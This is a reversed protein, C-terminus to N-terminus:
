QAKVETWIRDYIALAETPLPEIWELRAMTEEDPYVSPDELIEPDIYPKAAENPSAYWVYNTNIGAVEPDMLWNMFHEATLKHVGTSSAPICMNDQWIVGGEQPMVFTWAENEEAAVLVDGSWAHSLVIEGPVMLNDIYGSSDFTKWCPKAALLIERAEMLHAEDTENVSYGLYKLAAGVVERQDDLMNIGGDAYQCATDPDLLWAWSDPPPDVADMDYGIGTTGWFYPLSYVNGPDYAPDKNLDAINAFNPLNDFDLPALLGLEIMQAVMYDSPFILDYGTAGAQLKALLDENSDYTDLVVTVGFEEEYQTLLSEELYAAWNFVYLTDALEEEPPPPAPAAETPTAEPAPPPPETPTAAPACAALAISLLAVLGVITFYRKM